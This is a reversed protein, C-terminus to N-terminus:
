HRRKIEVKFVKKEGVMKPESVLMIGLSLDVKKGTSLRISVKDNSLETAIRCIGFRPHDVYDGKKMELINLESTEDDDHTMTEPMVVPSAPQPQIERDAPVSGPQLQVWPSFPTGRDRIMTTEESKVILFECFLVEGGGIIGALPSDAGAPSCEGYLRICVDDGMMSINGTLTPFFYTGDILAAPQFGSSAAAAILPNRIMASASIWGCQVSNERCITKFGAAVDQSQDLRGMFSAANDFRNVLM